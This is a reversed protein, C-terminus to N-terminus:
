LDAGWLDGWIRVPQSTRREWHRRGEERAVFFDPLPGAQKSKTWSLASILGIKGKIASTRRGCVDLELSLGFTNLPFATRKDSHKEKKISPV